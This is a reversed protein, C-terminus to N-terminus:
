DSAMGTFVADVAKITASENFKIAQSRGFFVPLENGLYFQSALVKGTYFAAEGNGALLKERDAGNVEGVLARMKPLTVSLSWIHCWALVIMYLADHFPKAQALINLIKGGAMHQKMLEILSDMEKVASVFLGLYKEDVIDKAKATTEDIKKRLISYNYQDKNMVIKRMVLDIAQIGNTGEFIALIKSDSLYRAAPYDKCYGYGGYVQMATSCIEVGKDTCGAKCIPVLIEMLAHAEKKATDDSEGNLYDEQMFLYYIFIRQAELHSKMWLLMRKVDPHHSITVSPADPNMMQTIDAGQVRNKAYAAAHMYAASSHAHGEFGTHIRAINMLNFMIKMGQREQGLLYGTCNGNDGFALQSTSQGHIGMKHEIGTCIVDNFEGTTGDATVKYKPVIFISIGKTGKPDGEIRALVAHIMNDYYDNEGSSIFIKQGSIKYTGDSQKVAKTKLAGVDSGADAETLAMTGGWEGSMIKDGFLTKQEPTGFDFLLGLTGHSLATYMLLPFNASSMFEHAGFSVTAPLGMGGNEQKDYLGMFGAEYFADLAPHYCEPIKVERTVPDWKAGIKDGEDATPYIVEVSIKEALDIIAEFTDHDFDAYIPYKTLKDVDLLEFLVFKLDRTDVLSNLM